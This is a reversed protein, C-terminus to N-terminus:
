IFMLIISAILFGLILSYTEKKHKSFLYSIIKLLIIAALIFGTSFSILGKIPFSIFLNLLKEYSGLSIYIATGSIGPIIISIAEIIGLELYGINYQFPLKILMLSIIFAIITLYYSHCERLIDKVGSLILLAFIILTIYHYRIYFFMMVKSFSVIAILVGSFISTLFITNKKVDHFYHLISNILKEYVNFRIAIISGSVGPIIKGIGILLGILFNKMSITHNTIFFFLM